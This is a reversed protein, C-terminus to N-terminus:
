GRMRGIGGPSASSLMEANSAARAQLGAIVLGEALSGPLLVALEPLALLPPEQLLTYYIFWEQFLWYTAWITVGWFLGQRVWTSGPIGAALRAFLWGHIGSLVVLGAVSLPVNRQPTIELFLPSQLSPDYLVRRLPPASFLAGLLGNGLFGGALGSAV